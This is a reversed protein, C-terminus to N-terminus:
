LIYVTREGRAGFRLQLNKKKHLNVSDLMNYTEAAYISLYISLHISKKECDLLPHLLHAFLLLEVLM